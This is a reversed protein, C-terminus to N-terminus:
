EKLCKLKRKHKRLRDKLKFFRVEKDYGKKNAIYDSKLVFWNKYLRVCMSENSYWEGDINPVNDGTGRYRSDSQM